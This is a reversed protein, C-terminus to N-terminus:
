VSQPRYKCGSSFSNNGVSKSKLAPGRGSCSSSADRCGALSVYKFDVVNILHRVRTMFCWGNLPMMHPIDACLSAKWPTRPSGSRIFEHMISQGPAQCCRAPSWKGHQRSWSQPGSQCASSDSWFYIHKRLNALFNCRNGLLLSTPVNHQLDFFTSFTIM